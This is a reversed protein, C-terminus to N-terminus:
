DRYRKHLDTVVRKDLVVARCPLQEVGRWPTKLRRFAARQADEV